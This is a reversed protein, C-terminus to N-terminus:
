GSRWPARFRDRLASIRQVQQRNSNPSCGAVDDFFYMKKRGLGLMEVGTDNTFHFQSRIRSLSYRYSAATARTIICAPRAYGSIRMTLFVRFSDKFASFPGQQVFGSRPNVNPTW